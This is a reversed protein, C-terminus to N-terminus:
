QSTLPWVVEQLLGSSRGMVRYGPGPSQPDAEMGADEGGILTAVPTQAGPCALVGQSVEPLGTPTGPSGLSECWVM